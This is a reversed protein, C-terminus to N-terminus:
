PVEPRKATIVLGAVPEAGETRLRESDCRLIELGASRIADTVYARRHAYRGHHALVFDRTEDEGLAEVTFILVGGPRLSAFSAAAFADLKGFYCLTDASVVADFGVPRAELYATLEAQETQDYLNRRQAQALMGGSLDVGRLTRAFPRLLKACKGTGCGADLIDLKRDDDGVFRSLAEGVLKPARYDLADLKSDFSKAFRDFLNSVYADSAREPVNEGSFSALLHAAQPDNPKDAVWKRVFDIAQQKMGANWYVVALLPATLSKDPILAAAKWSHDLAEKKRGTRLLLGALNHHAFGNQDNLRLAERLLREAEQDDNRSRMISALNGYPDPLDPDLRMADRYAEVAADIDNLEVYANGLNNRVGAHNPDAAAARRLIGISEQPGALHYKLIGLYNLAVANDPEAEVVLDLIAAAQGLQRNKTLELAMEIAEATSVLRQEPKSEDVTEASM